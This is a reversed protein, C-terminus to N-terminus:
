RRSGRSYARVSRVRTGVERLAAGLEAHYQRAATECTSVLDRLHADDGPAPEVALRALVEQMASRAGQGDKQRLRALLADLRQYLEPHGATM